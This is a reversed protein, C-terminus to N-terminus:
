RRKASARLEALVERGAQLAADTEFTTSEASPQRRYFLYIAASTRLRPDSLVELAHRLEHGIAAMTELASRRLDVKVRLLRYPGALKVSHMLCATVGRGCRGDQVYVLGDTANIAEIERRLTASRETADTILGVITVNESRVHPPPPPVEDADATPTVSLGALTLAIMGLVQHFCHAHRNM